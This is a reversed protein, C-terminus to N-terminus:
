KDLELFLTPTKIPIVNFNKILFLTLLNTIQSLFLPYVRLHFHFFLSYTIGGDKGGSAEMLLKSNMWRSM